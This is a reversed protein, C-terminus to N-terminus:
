MDEMADNVGFHLLPVDYLDPNRLRRMAPSAVEVILMETLFQVTASLLISPCPLLPVDAGDGPSPRLQRQRAIRIV